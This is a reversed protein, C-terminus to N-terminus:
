RAPLHSAHRKLATRYLDVYKRASSAWSFDCKMGNAVLRSWARTDGFLKVAKLVQLLSATAALSKLEAADEATLDLTEEAGTKVLLLDHLYEVLERTFQKLDLGDRGVSSITKMGAPVDNAVIHRAVERVRQDGTLGLMTQVQQLRIDAGYYTSLQQLLNEADRLSGGTSRAM